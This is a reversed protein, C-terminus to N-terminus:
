VCATQWPRELIRPLDVDNLVYSLADLTTQSHFCLKKNQREVQVSVETKSQKGYGDVYVM